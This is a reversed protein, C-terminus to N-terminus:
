FFNECLASDRASAVLWNMTGPLSLALLAIMAAMAFRIGKQKPSLTGNLRARNALLLSTLGGIFLGSNAILSAILDMDSERVLRITGGTGAASVGPVVAGVVVTNHAQQVDAAFAVGCGLAVGLALCFMLIFSTMILRYYRQNTFM